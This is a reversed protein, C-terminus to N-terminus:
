QLCLRLRRGFSIYFCANFLGNMWRVDIVEGPTTKVQLPPRSWSTTRTHHNIYYRRGKSDRKEEWGLPMGASTPLLQRCCLTWRQSLSAWQCAPLHSWVWWPTLLLSRERQVTPVEETVPIAHIKLLVRRCLHPPTLPSLSRQNM